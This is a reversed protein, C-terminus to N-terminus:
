YAFALICVLFVYFIVHWSSSACSNVKDAWGGGFQTAHISIKQQFNLTNKWNTPPTIRKEAIALLSPNKLRAMSPCRFLCLLAHHHCQASCLLTIKKSITSCIRRRTKLTILFVQIM